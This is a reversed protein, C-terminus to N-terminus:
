SVLTFLEPGTMSQEAASRGATGPAKNVVATHVSELAETWSELAMYRKKELAQRHTRSSLSPLDTLLFLELLRM